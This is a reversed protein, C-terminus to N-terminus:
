WELLSSKNLHNSIKMADNIKVNGDGNVDAAKLYAENEIISSKNLHNSIKMADNIKVNGDGNVDAKIVIIKSDLVQSNRELKMVM